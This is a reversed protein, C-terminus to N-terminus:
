PPPSAGAFKASRLEDALRDIEIQELLLQVLQRCIHVSERYDRGIGALLHHRV